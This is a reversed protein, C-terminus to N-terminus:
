RPREDGYLLKLEFENNFKKQNEIMKKYFTTKYFVDKKIEIWDNKM